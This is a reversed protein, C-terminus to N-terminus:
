TYTWGEQTGKLRKYITRLISESEKSEGLWKIKKKLIPKKKMPEEM